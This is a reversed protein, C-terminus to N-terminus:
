EELLDLKYTWQEEETGVVLWLDVNNNDDSSSSSSSTAASASTGPAEPGRQTVRLVAADSYPQSEDCANSAGGRPALFGSQPTVALGIATADVEVFGGGGNGDDSSSSAMLKAHFKEWTREQNRIEISAAYVMGDMPNSNSPIELVVPVNGNGNGNDNDRTKPAMRLAWGPLPEDEDEEVGFAAGGHGSFSADDFSARNTGPSGGFQYKGGHLGGVVDAISRYGPQEGGGGGGGDDGSLALSIRRHRPGVSAVTWATVPAFRIGLGVAAATAAIRARPLPRRRATGSPTARAAM